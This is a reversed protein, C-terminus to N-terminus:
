KHDNGDSGIPMAVIQLANIMMAYICVTELEHLIKKREENNAHRLIPLYFPTYLSSQMRSVQTSNGKEEKRTSKNNGSIAM